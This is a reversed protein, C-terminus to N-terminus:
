YTFSNMAVISPNNAATYPILWLNLLSFRRYFTLPISLYRCQEHSSESRSLSGKKPSPFIDTREDKMSLNGKLESIVPVSNISAGNSVLSRSEPIVSVQNCSGGNSIMVLVTSADENAFSSQGGGEKERPLNEFTEQEELSSVDVCHESVTISSGNSGDSGNSQM